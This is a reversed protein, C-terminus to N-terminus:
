TDDKIAGSSSGVASILVFLGIGWGMIGSRSQRLFISRPSM